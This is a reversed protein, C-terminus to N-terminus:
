DPQSFMRYNVHNTFSVSEDVKFRFFAQRFGKIQGWARLEFWKVGFGLKLASM